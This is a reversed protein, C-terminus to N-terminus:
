KCDIKDGTVSQFFISKKEEIDKISMNPEFKITKAQKFYLDCYFNVIKMFVKVILNNKFIDNFFTRFYTRIFM